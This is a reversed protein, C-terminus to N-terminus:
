ALTSAKGNCFTAEAMDAIYSNPRREAEAEKLVAIIQEARLSGKVM